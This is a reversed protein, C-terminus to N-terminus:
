TSIAARSRPRKASALFRRLSDGSPAAASAPVDNGSSRAMVAFFSPKSRGAAFESSATDSRSKTSSVSAAAAIVAIWRDRNASSITSHVDGSTPKRRSDSLNVVPEDIMGCFRLGSAASSTRAL